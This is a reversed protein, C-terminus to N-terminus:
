KLYFAITELLKAKNLPKTLFDNAGADLALKRDEDFANATVAVIPTQKDFERICKTATIGDMIPMRMDMLIIDFANDRAMDVGQQGNYARSLKYTRLLAKILMFNSDNDEVVLLSIESTDRAALNKANDADSMSSSLVSSDKAVMNSPLIAWFTSGVGLTSNVGIEGKYADIIAKAISVGLGTGQVFKNFKEFRGFVRKSEDESMGAGTDEVFLQVANGIIKYGMRIYGKQTFKIANTMFNTIVQSIRLRDLYVLYEEQPVDCHLEVNSSMKYNFMVKLEHFLESLNFITDNCSFYGAEIKSLDLIDNIINLLTESNANVVEVYGQQEEKTEADPILQAFGVISNLPTRIEHSMNALFASKLQDSQEALEKARALEVMVEEKTTIDDLRLVVGEIQHKDDFIPQAISEVVIGSPTHFKGRAQTKTRLSEIVTNRSCEHQIPCNMTCLHKENLLCTVDKDTFTSTVNEWEIELDPNLYLFGANTNNLILQNLSLLRRLDKNDQFEKTVDKQSGVILTVEGNEDYEMPMAHVRSRQIEDHSNRVLVTINGDKAGRYLIDDFMSVTIDRDKPDIISLLREMSMDSDIVINEHSSSFIGKKVDYSWSTLGGAILAMSLEKNIRTERDKQELVIDTIDLVQSIVKDGAIKSITAELYAEKIMYQFKLPVGTNFVSDFVSNLMSCAQYFPSESDNAYLLLNNGVIENIPVGGITQNTANFIGIINKDSDLLFISQPLAMFMAKYVELENKINSYYDRIQEM